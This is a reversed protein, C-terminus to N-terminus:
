FAPCSTPGQGHPYKGNSNRCRNQQPRKRPRQQEHAVKNVIANISTTPKTTTNADELRMQVQHKTITETTKAYNILDGLLMNPNMLGKQRVKESLCGIILQSKIEANADTFRCMVAAEKLERYFDEINPTPNKKRFVFQNYETNNEPNFHNQVALVLKDFHTENKEPTTQESPLEDILDIKQEGVFTLLIAKQRKDDEINYSIIKRDTSM